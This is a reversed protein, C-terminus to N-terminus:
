EHQIFTSEPLKETVYLVFIIVLNAMETESRTFLDKPTWPRVLAGGDRLISTLEEQKLM